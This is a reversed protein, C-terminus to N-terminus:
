QEGLSSNDAACARLVSRAGCCAGGGRPAAQAAVEAVVHHRGQVGGHVAGQLLLAGDRAWPEGANSTLPRSAVHDSRIQEAGSGTARRPEVHQQLVAELM